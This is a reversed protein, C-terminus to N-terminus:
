RKVEPKNDASQNEENMEAQCKLEMTGDSHSEIITCNNFIIKGQPKDWTSACSLCLLTIILLIWFIGSIITAKRNLRKDSDCANSIGSCSNYDVLVKALYGKGDSNRVM